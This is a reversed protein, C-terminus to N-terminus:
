QAGLKLRREIDHGRQKLFLLAHSRVLVYRDVQDVLREMEAQEEASLSGHKGLTTLERLRIDQPWTLEREVVAWLQEDSFTALIQPTLEANDPLDGFLLSLSDLLVTELPRHSDQAVQRVREYLDEPLQLVVPQQAM